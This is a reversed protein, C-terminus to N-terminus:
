WAPGKIYLDTQTGFQSVAQHPPIQSLIGAKVLERLSNELVAASDRNPAKFSALLRLRRRLYGFPVVPKDWLSKPVKYQQRQPVRMSLYAEVAKRIDPERKSDGSGVDGSEFREALNLVCRRVFVIAWDAMGGTILPDYHNVGVAILGALKIANQYARNWVEAVPGESNARAARADAEEMFAFLKAEATEDQKVLCPPVGRDGVSIATAALDAFSRVLAAAPMSGHNRNFKPRAGKYEIVLFRPILGDEIHSADLGDFFTSPTSEGILTLNPAQVAQTNKTVDSYVTPRLIGSWGSQNYLDLLMRKLMKEASNARPHALQQLTIGFEGLVAVFCPKDNFVKILAQGSAIGAPGIFDDARPVQSRVAAILKEIGKRVGEKGSGTKALLIVYQNLGTDSVNYARGCVGAMLAIAAALAIEPVPRTATNYFFDAMEGVLGPPLEMGTATAISSIATAPVNLNEDTESACDPEVMLQDAQQLLASLDIEPPQQARIKELMRNLYKDDRTAKDRKGLKSMRFIRRVQENSGTYFALMAMLAFDAESQSPYNLKEWEGNCLATFKDGNRANMAMDVLEGDDMTGEVDILTTKTIPHMGAYLRDLWIQHGDTIPMDRLVNGTFVMFRSDSYVEVNDRHGGFPVVGRMVIHVGTGSVSLETYSQFTEYIKTHRALQEPTAPKDPKNDLDIITYPDDKSLMFGIGSFVGFSMAYIVSEFDAWTNPDTPSARHGNTQYPAKTIRKTGDERTEEEYKWVAWQHFTKLEEPIRDFSMSKGSIASHPTAGADTHNRRDDKPQEYPRHQGGADAKEEGMM